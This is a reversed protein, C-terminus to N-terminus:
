KKSNKEEYMRRDATAILEDLSKPKEPAYESFGISFQINYDKEIKRNLKILEKELRSRILSAEQLSNDPFILLFEDGGM